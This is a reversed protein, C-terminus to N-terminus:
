AAKRETEWQESAWAWNAMHDLFAEVFKPRDNQYDLYYAHEWVDCTLLCTKGDTLPNKANPTALIELKTGDAVLWAWGSGFQGKGTEVFKKRFADFSGFSQDIRQALEGSPKGGGGPKLCHWLFTHNWTQAANNFIKVSSKDSADATARMIETLDMKEFKTGEVLDNLTEVYKKHHKGHHFDLTKASMHPELAAKDFPLPPLKFAM